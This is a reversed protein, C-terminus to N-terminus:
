VFRFCDSKFRYVIQGIPFHIFCNSPGCIVRATVWPQVVICPNWANRPFQMSCYVRVSYTLRALENASSRGVYDTDFRQDPCTPSSGGQMEQSNLTDSVRPRTALHASSTRAVDKLITPSSRYFSFKRGRPLRSHQGWCLSTWTRSTGAPRPSSSQSSLPGESTALWAISSGNSRFSAVAPSYCPQRGAHFVLELSHWIRDIAAAIWTRQFVCLRRKWAERHM